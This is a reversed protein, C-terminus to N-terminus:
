IGTHVVPPWTSESLDTNKECQVNWVAIGTLSWKNNRTRASLLFLLDHYSSIPTISSADSSLGYLTAFPCHLSAPLPVFNATLGPSYSFKFPIPNSIRWLQLLFSQWLSSPSPVSPSLLPLQIKHVTIRLLPACLFGHVVAQTFISWIYGIFCKRFRKKLSHENRTGSAGSSSFVLQQKKLGDPSSHFTRSCRWESLFSELMKVM